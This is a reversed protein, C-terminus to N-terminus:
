GACGSVYRSCWCGPRRLPRSRSSPLGTLCPGAPGSPWCWWSTASRAAWPSSRCCVGPPPKDRAQAARAADFFTGVPIGALLLGPIGAIVAGAVFGQICLGRTPLGSVQGRQLMVYWGRAGAAGALSAALAVVLAGGAGVGVRALLAVLVALAAVLGAAVM